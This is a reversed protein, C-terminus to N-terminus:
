SRTGFRIVGDTGLSADAEALLTALDASAIEQDIERQHDLYYSIADYIAAPELHSYAVAIEEAREGRRFLEAITRVSIRSGEIHPRGGCVGPTRAIHPHETKGVPPESLALAQM